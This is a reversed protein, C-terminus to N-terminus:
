ATVDWRNASTLQTVDRMERGAQLLANIVVRARRKIEDDTAMQAIRDLTTLADNMAENFNGIEDALRERLENNHSEPDFNGNSDYSSEELMKKVSEKIVRHLDSETLRITKKMNYRTKHHKNETIVEIPENPTLKMVKAHKPTGALPDEFGDNEWTNQIQLNILAVDNEELLQCDYVFQIVEFPKRTGIVKNKDKKDTINMDVTVNSNHNGDMSFVISCNIASSPDYAKDYWTWLHTGHSSVRMQKPKSNQTTYTRYFSDDRKNPIFGNNDKIAKIAFEFDVM